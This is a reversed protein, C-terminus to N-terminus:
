WLFFLPLSPFSLFVLFFSSSSSLSLLPYEWKFSFARPRVIHLFRKPPPKSGTTLRFVSHHFTSTYVRIFLKCLKYQPYEHRIIAKLLLGFYAACKLYQFNFHVLWNWWYLLGHLGLPPISSYSQEKRLKSALHPHTTLAVSQGWSLFGIGTKNFSRGARLADSYRSRQWRGVPM